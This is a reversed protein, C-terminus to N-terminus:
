FFNLTKVEQRSGAMLKKTHDDYFNSRFKMNRDVPITPWPIICALGGFENAVATATPVIKHDTHYRKNNYQHINSQQM